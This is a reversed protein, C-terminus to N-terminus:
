RPQAMAWIGRKADRAEGEAKSLESDKFDYGNQRRALGAKLVEVAVEKIGIAPDDTYLLRGLMEGNPTRGLFWLRVNKGFVLNAVFQKAETAFPEEKPADIGAIRIDYQGTGYGLTLLNASKAETVKGYISKGTCVSVPVIGFILLGLFATAAWIKLKLMANKGQSEYSHPKCCPSYTAEPLYLQRRNAPHLRWDIWGTHYPHPIMIHNRYSASTAGSLDTINLYRMSGVYGPHDPGSEDSQNSKATKPLASGKGGQAIFAERDMVNRLTSFFTPSIAIM